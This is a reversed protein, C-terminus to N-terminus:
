FNAKIRIVFQNIADTHIVAFLHSNQILHKFKGKRDKFCIRCGAILNANADIELKRALSICNARKIPRCGLGYVKPMGGRAFSLAQLNLPDFGYATNWASSAHSM